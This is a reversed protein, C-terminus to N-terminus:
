PDLIAKRSETTVAATIKNEPNCADSTFAAKLPSSLNANVALTIFFSEDTVTTEDIAEDFLYVFSKSPDVDTAGDLDAVSLEDDGLTPEDDPDDNSSVQSADGGCGFSYIVATFFLILIFFIRRM